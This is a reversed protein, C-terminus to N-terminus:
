PSLPSLARVRVRVSVSVRVRVRIFLRPVTRERIESLQQQETVQGQSGPAEDTFPLFHRTGIAGPRTSSVGPSMNRVIDM